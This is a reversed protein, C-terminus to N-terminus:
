WMGAENVVIIPSGVQDYVFYYRVGDKEMACPMRGDAYEFRMTLTNSGDYVALLRTMGQWLYKEVTTGNVRKAARRGLPDYEYEVLTGDPLTVGLLEGRTSYEYATVGTEDTRSELFGDLDYAYVTDGASLLHDEDSYACSRAAIGRDANMEFIRAGAPGYRYEEILVGDRTVTTLRGGADYTYDNTTSVGQLTETKEIIRGDADRQTERLGVQLGSVDVTEREVEGYGNFSRALEMVGDSVTEPLGNGTNQGITFGGSGTLLGDDDYTYLHTGGAYGIGALRFDNDYTFSTTHNLTGSVEESTMLRGDHTYRVTDTGNSISGVTNGCQYTVDLADDPTLIEVLRGDRYGYEIADGSPFVVRRVRRDRDYVYRYTGSMPAVYEDTRNVANYGFGHNVETPTTLMTMNGNLDYDFLISRGDPNHIGTVRGVPDHDFSTIHQEPDTVTELFGNSDYTFSAQRTGTTLSTIRGRSDYGWLTDHLGPVTLRATLLTEPDYGATVVRGEPSIVRKEAQLVDHEMVFSKGNIKVHRSMLDPFGDLDRDRCWKETETVRLLDSPTKEEGRAVYRTGFWTDVKEKSTISMGCPFVKSASLNDAPRSYLSEGTPTEIRSHYIGEADTVDYYRVYDNEGTVVSSLVTGTSLNQHFFAWSGGEEDTIEELRGKDTFRNEYRNGEPEVKATLLGGMSYEFAYVSGDPHIIETLHNRGNVTLGTTVGDPAVVAVPIGEGDRVIQTRNGSRDDIGILRKEEDYVLTYLTKGTDIDFTSMHLGSDSVIHGVGSEELFQGFGEEVAREFPSPRAVKRVTFNSDDVVYLANDPGQCVDIPSDLEASVAAGRDGGYGAIDSGALTTITGVTNVKRIRHNGRDAIYLNGERDTIVSTPNSLEAM